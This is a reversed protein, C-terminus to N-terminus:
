LCTWLPVQILKFLLSIFGQSFNLFVCIISHFLFLIESYSTFEIFCYFYQLLGMSFHLQFDFVWCDMPFFENSFRVSQPSLTSYVHNIGSAFPSSSSWDIYSFSLNLFFVQPRFICSILCMTIQNVGQIIPISPSYPWSLSCIM